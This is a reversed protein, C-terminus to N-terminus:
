IGSSHQVVFKLRLPVSTPQGNLTGPKYTYKSVSAVAHQDTVPDASQIVKIDQPKGNADVTLDLVVTRSTLPAISASEQEFASQPDTLLTPASVGTSIRVPTKAPDSAKFAEFAAPLSLSSQLIPTSSPQAPTVAQAVLMAPTLALIAVITRTM